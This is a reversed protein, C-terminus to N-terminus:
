ACQHKFDQSDKEALNLVEMYGQASEGANANFIFAPYAHGSVDCWLEFLGWAAAFACSGVYLKLTYFLRKSGCNEAAAFIALLVGFALYATQTLNYMGFRLPVTQNSLLSQDQGFGNRESGSSCELVFRRGWFLSYGTVRVALQSGDRRVGHRYVPFRRACLGCSQWCIELQCAKRM